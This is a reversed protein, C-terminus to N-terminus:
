ARLRHSIRVSAPSRHCAVCVLCPGHPDDARAEPITSNPAGLNNAPLPDPRALARPPACAVGCSLICYTYPMRHFHCRSSAM